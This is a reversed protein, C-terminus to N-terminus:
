RLHSIILYVLLGSVTNIIIQEGNRGMFRVVVQTGNHQAFAQAITMIYQWLLELELESPKSATEPVVLPQLNPTYDRRLERKPSPAAPPPTDPEVVVPGYRTAGRMLNRWAVSERTRHRRLIRVQTQGGVLGQRRADELISNLEEYQRHIGVFNAGATEYLNLLSGQTDAVRAAHLAKTGRVLDDRMPRLQEATKMAQSIGNFSIDTLPRILESARPSNAAIEWVQRTGGLAISDRTV